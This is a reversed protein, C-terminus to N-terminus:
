LDGSELAAVLLLFCLACEENTMFDLPHAQSGKENLKCLWSFVRDNTVVSGYWWQSDILTLLKEAGERLIKAYELQNM